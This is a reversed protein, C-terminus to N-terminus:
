SCSVQLSEEATTATGGARLRTGPSRVDTAARRDTEAGLEGRLVM